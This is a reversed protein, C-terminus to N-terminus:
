IPLLLREKITVYARDFAAPGRALKTPGVPVKEHVAVFKRFSSQRRFIQRERFNPRSGMLLYHSLVREEKALSQFACDDAVGGDILLAGQYSVPHFLMPFSASARVAKVVSANDSFVKTRFRILDFASIALPLKLQNFDDKVYDHLLSEFKKGKLLGPGLAPDWFDPRQFGFLIRKMEDTSHGSAYLAAVIAGASTGTIKAPEIGEDILAALFGAHSFFGFFGGSLALTFKQERLWEKLTKEM